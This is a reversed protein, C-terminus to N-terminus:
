ESFLNSLKTKFDFFIGNLLKKERQITNKITWYKVTNILLM